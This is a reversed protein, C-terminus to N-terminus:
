HMQRHRETPSGSPRVLVICLSETTTVTADMKLMVRFLEDAMAAYFKSMPLGDSHRIVLRRLHNERADEINFEFRQGYDSVRRVLEIVSSETFEGGLIESVIKLYNRANERGYREIEDDDLSGFLKILIDRSVSVMGFEKSLVDWELYKRLCRNVLFNVSVHEYEARRAISEDLKGELRLSRTVSRDM